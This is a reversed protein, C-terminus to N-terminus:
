EIFENARVLLARPVELGLAKATKLNIVLEYKDPRQVPLNAPSEGRLIRDVYSAARRVMDRGDPGYSMLGGETTYYRFAYCGPIRRELALEVIRAHHASTFSDTAVLLGANQRAGLTGVAQQIEFTSRVPMAVPEMGLSTTADMFQDLWYSGGGYAADPNVMLGVAGIEPAMQKLLQLWKGVIPYELSIFGTINNEPRSVSKLLGAGVPDAMQVFVIPIADTQDRIAKIAFPTNTVIVDPWLTVLERALVRLREVDGAAFRADIQLNHNVKWGLDDLRATLDAVRTKAM